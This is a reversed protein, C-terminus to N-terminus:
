RAAWAVFDYQSRAKALISSKRFNNSEQAAERKCEDGFVTLDDAEWVERAAVKRCTKIPWRKERKIAAARTEIEERVRQSETGM